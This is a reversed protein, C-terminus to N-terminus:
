RLFRGEILPETPHHESVQSQREVSSVMQGPPSGEGLAIDPDAVRGDGLQMREGHCLVFRRQRRDEVDDRCFRGSQRRAAPGDDARGLGYPRQNFFILVAIAAAASTSCAMRSAM